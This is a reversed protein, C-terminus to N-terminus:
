QALEKLGARILAATEAAPGLQASDPFRRRRGPGPRLRPWRSCAGRGRGGQRAKARPRPRIGRPRFRRRVDGAGQGQARAGSARRAEPGRGASAGDHGQGTERGSHELSGGLARRSDGARGQRWRGAREAALSVLRARRGHLLRLESRTKACMPNRHLLETPEGLAPIARLTRASASVLYGVGSVDLVLAEEEVSDVTGKLKGIM